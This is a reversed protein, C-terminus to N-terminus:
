KGKEIALRPKVGTDKLVCCPGMHRMIMGHNHSNNFVDRTAPDGNWKEEFSRWGPSNASFLEGCNDCMMVASM